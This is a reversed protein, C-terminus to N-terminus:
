GASLTVLYCMECCFRPWLRWIEFAKHSNTTSNRTFFITIRSEPRLLRSTFTGPWPVKFFNTCELLYRAALRKEEAMRRQEEVERQKQLQREIEAQRRREADRRFVPYYPHPFFLLFLPRDHKM